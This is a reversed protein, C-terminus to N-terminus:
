GGTTSWHWPESPLNAFGYRGANAALWQFAESSRSEIFAGDVSFDVALGQEHLSSGPRATPPSCSSPDVDYIAADSWGGCNQARLAVQVSVDRYGYGGLFIGDSSAAALLARLQPAISAAVTITGVTALEPRPVSRRVTSSSGSARKPVQAALAAQEAQIRSSLAADIRSLHASEALSAELRARVQSAFAEQEARAADLAALAQEAEVSAQEARTRAADARRREDDLRQQTARMEDLVDVQEGTRMELLARRTADEQANPARLRRFFDEDPPNIYADVAQEVVAARLEALEASTEAMAAEAEAVQATAVEAERRADALAAQQGRVNEDLAALAAEVERQDGQLADVRSAVQAQEARVQARQERASPEGAGAGSGPGALVALLLCGVVGVAATATRRTRTSRSSSLPRM